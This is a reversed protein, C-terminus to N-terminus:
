KIFSLIKNIGFVCIISMCAITGLLGGFGNFYNSTHSCLSCFIFSSIIFDIITHKYKNSIMGMFTAGMIITICKYLIDNEFHFYIATQYILGIPLAITVSAKIPGFKKNHNLFYTLYYSVFCILTEFLLLM